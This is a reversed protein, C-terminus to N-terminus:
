RPAGDGSPRLQVLRLRPIPTTLIASLVRNCSTYINGFYEFIDLSIDTDEVFIKTKVSLQSTHRIQVLLPRIDDLGRAPDFTFADSVEFFQGIGWDYWIVHEVNKRPRYRLLLGKNPGVGWSM